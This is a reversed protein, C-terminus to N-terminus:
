QYSTKSACSNSLTLRYQCLVQTTKGREADPSRYQINAILIQSLSHAALRPKSADSSEDEIRRRKRRQPNEVFTCEEARSQCM